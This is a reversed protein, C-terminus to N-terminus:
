PSPAAVAHETQPSLISEEASKTGYYVIVAMSVVLGVYGLVMGPHVRLRYFFINTLWTWAPATGIIMVVVLLPLDRSVYAATTTQDAAYYLVAGLVILKLAGPSVPFAVKAGTLEMYTVQGVAMLFMLPYWYVLLAAPTYESLQERVVVAGSGYLIAAALPNRIALLANVM